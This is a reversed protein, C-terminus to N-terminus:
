ICGVPVIWDLNLWYSVNVERKLYERSVRMDEGHFDCTGKGREFLM